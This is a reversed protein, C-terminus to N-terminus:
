EARIQFTIKKPVNLNMEHYILWLLTLAKVRQAQSCLPSFCAEIFSRNRKKVVSQDSKSPTVNWSRTRATFFLPVVWTTAKCSTRRKSATRARCCIRQEIGSPEPLGGSPIAALLLGATNHPCSAASQLHGASGRQLVSPCRCFLSPCCCRSSRRCCRSTHRQCCPRSQRSPSALRAPCQSPLVALWSREPVEDLLGELPEELPEEPKQPEEPQPLDMPRIPSWHRHPCHRPRHRAPHHRSYRSHPDMRHSASVDIIQQCVLQTLCCKSCVEEMAFAHSFSPNNAEWHTGNFM